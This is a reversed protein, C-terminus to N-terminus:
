ELGMKFMMYLKCGRDPKKWEGYCMPSNDMYGCIGATRRKEMATSSELRLVCCFKDEMEVGSTSKHWKWTPAIIFSSTTFKRSVTNRYTKNQQDLLFIWKTWSVVQPHLIAPDYSQCKNVTLLCWLAGKQSTWIGKTAFTLDRRLSQTLQSWLAEALLLSKTVSFDISYFGPLLTMTRWFSLGQKNTVLPVCRYLKDGLLFISIKLM